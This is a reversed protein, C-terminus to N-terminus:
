KKLRLFPQELLAWSLRALLYTGVFALLVYATQMWVPGWGSTELPKKFAELWAYEFMLHFVYLGYSYKGLHRLFPTECLNRVLANRDQNLALYLLAAFFLATMTALYQTNGNWLADYIRYGMLCALARAIWKDYPVFSPLDLRFFVALFAGAALGDMRCYPMVYSARSHHAGAMDDAWYRLGTSFHVLLVCVLLLYRNPTFRVVLPWLLYFQEEIALSWLHNLNFIHSHYLWDGKLGMAINPAFAFFWGFSDYGQLREPAKEVFLITLWTVLVAAYYLPFIRLVRRRYFNGFYGPKERADLLIGTILFGSLVFFLDVGLWGGQVLNYWQQSSWWERLIFHSVMVLLIALGRIGDLAPIHKLDNNTTRQGNNTTRQENNTTRQERSIYIGESHQPM